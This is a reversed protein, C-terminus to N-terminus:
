NLRLLALPHDVPNALFCGDKNFETIMGLKAHRQITIPRKTDNYLYMFSLAANIVYTYLGGRERLNNDYSLKFIFDKDKPFDKVKVPVELYSFPPVVM